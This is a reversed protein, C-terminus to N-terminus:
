EVRMRRFHQELKPVASGGGGAAKIDSGAVSGTGGMGIVVSAAGVDYNSFANIFSGSSSDAYITTGTITGLAAGSGGVAIVMDGTASTITVTSVSAAAASNPFSTTGGTQDVGNFAMGVLFMQSNSTWALALTKNGTAPNVLGWLEGQPGLHAGSDSTIIRTM